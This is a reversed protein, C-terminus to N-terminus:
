RGPRRGPRGPGRRFGGGVASPVPRRRCTGTGCCGIRGIGAWSVGPPPEWTWGPASGRRRGSGGPGWCGGSTGRGSWRGRGAGGPGAGAGAGPAAWGLIRASGRDARGAVEAPTEGGPCPGAWVTWGPYRQQIQASTEGELEGYDWEVLDQDIEFPVLGALQ